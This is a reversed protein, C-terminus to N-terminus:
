EAGLEGSGRLHAGAPHPRLDRASARGTQRQSPMVSPTGPGEPPLSAQKCTDQPLCGGCPGVAASGCHVSPKISIIDERRLSDHVKARDRHGEQPNEARPWCSEHAPRDGEQLSLNTLLSHGSMPCRADESTGPPGWTHAPQSGPVGRNTPQPLWSTSCPRSGQDNEGPSQPM